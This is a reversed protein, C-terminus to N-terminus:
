FSSRQKAHQIILNFKKQFANWYNRKKQLVTKKHEFNQFWFRVAQFYDSSYELRSKRWKKTLHKTLAFNM